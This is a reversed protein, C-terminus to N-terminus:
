AALAARIQAALAKLAEPNARERGHAGVRQGAQMPIIHVHYHFVSQGAAAGNTQVIRIGDPALAKQVARAIRQATAAVVFLESETIELLNPAHTKPIVLAHGPSAPQIDMFTLTHEDEHVKVAPLEGRVIKCFVCQTSEAM